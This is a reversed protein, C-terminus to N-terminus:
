LGKLQEIKAAFYSSKEPNIFSLKIYLQIAKETQGQQMLVEAMAETVIERSENSIKANEYVAKEMEPNSVLETVSGGQVTKMQKLWDTFKRLHTTLKDQPIANLDIKIGQSAFYDITHMRKRDADIDLSANPDIPKKFDALQSSLIDSIKSEATKDPDLDTEADTKQDPTDPWKSDSQPINEKFSLLSPQDPKVERLEPQIDPTIHSDSEPSKVMEKEFGSLQLSLWLPNTFYLQTHQLSDKWDDSRDKIQKQATQFFHIPAFYPAEDVLQQLTEPAIQSLSLKGTLHFLAKEQNLNM